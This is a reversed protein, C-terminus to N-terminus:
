TLLQLSYGDTLFRVLELKQQGLAAVLRKAYLAVLGDEDKGGLHNKARAAALELPVGLVYPEARPDNDTVIRSGCHGSKEMLELVIQAQKLSKLTAEEAWDEKIANHRIELLIRERVIPIGLTFGNREVQWLCQIVVSLMGNENAKRIMKDLWGQKMNGKTATHFGELLGPINRWDQPETSLDLVRLFSTSRPVDKTVDLHELRLDEDGLTAYVPEYELQSKSKQSQIL